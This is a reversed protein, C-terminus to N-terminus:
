WWAPYFLLDDPFKLSALTCRVFCLPYFGPDNPYNRTRISVMAERVRLVGIRVMEIQAFSNPITRENEKCPRGFEYGM